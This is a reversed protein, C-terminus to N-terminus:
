LPLTAFDSFDAAIDDHDTCFDLEPFPFSGANLGGPQGDSDWSATVTLVEDYSAPYITALDVNANGAAVVYVVGAAVSACIAMHVADNNTRGCNGDDSGPGEISM